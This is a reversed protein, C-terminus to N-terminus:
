KDLLHIFVVLEIRFEFGAMVSKSEVATELASGDM